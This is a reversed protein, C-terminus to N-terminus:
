FGDGALSKTRSNCIGGLKIKLIEARELQCLVVDDCSQM